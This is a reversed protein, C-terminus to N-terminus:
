PPFVTLCVAPYYQCVFLLKYMGRIGCFSILGWRVRVSCTNPGTDMVQLDDQYCLINVTSPIDPSGYLYAMISSPM